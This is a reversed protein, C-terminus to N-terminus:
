PEEQPRPWHPRTARWGAIQEHVRAREDPPAPPPLPPVEVDYPRPERVLARERARAQWAAIRETHNSERDRRHGDLREARRCNEGPEAGCAPCPLERVQSRNPHDIM